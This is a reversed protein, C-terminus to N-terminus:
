REKGFFAELGQRYTALAKDAQGKAEYVRGLELYARGSKRDVRVVKTLHEEAKDLDGALRYAWGSVLDVRLKQRLGQVTIGEVVELAAASDGTQCLLEGLKLTTEVNNPDLDLGKRVESVASALSGRSALMEAMQLHRAVRDNVTSNSVTKVEVVGSLDAATAIGLGKRLGSIVLPAFDYGAGAKLAAIKDDTGGILATPTAIIGFLGWLKYDSDIVVSLSSGYKDADFDFGEVAEPKDVILAVNINGSDSGLGSFIKNIDGAAQASGKQGSSLFLVLLAKNEGHKFSFTKGDATAGTFEPMTQGMSLRRSQGSAPAAVWFLSITFGILVGAHISRSFAFAKM